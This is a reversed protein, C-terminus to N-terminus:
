SVLRKLREAAKSLTEIRKSFAFRVLHKGEEPNRTYFVSPPIAAVKCHEILYRVFSKDDGEWLGAFDALIYYTGKPVAAHFGTDKLAKLMLNRRALYEERLKLYYESTFEKLVSALAAQLPTPAAFSVYQHASQFAAVLKRSGIVWGVRWGTLSFTKGASSITLTRERMGPIAAMLVHEAGDYTIHEYVEDTAVVVDHKICLRAISELEVRSFVKGTPNHPTNLVLLRTRKNFCKELEKIDIDFDPFRLTYFRPVAGALAACVPYSDYYPEFVIVEDGPNLFGLFTSAMGATAGSCVAVESDPDYSLNYQRLVKEAVAEVLGKYGMSRAYQNHGGKLAQVAGELVEPPGDFDPFGQSLNIAGQEDAFRTMESFINTGFPTLKKSVLFVERVRITPQTRRPGGDSRQMPISPSRM